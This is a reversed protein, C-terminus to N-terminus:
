LVSNLWCLQNRALKSRGLHYFEVKIAGRFAVWSRSPNFTDEPVVLSIDNCDKVFEESICSVILGLHLGQHHTDYFGNFLTEFFVIKFLLGFYSNIM